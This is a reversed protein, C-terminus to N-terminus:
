VAEGLVRALAKRMEALPAPKDLWLELSCAAQHLLMLRGDAVRTEGRTFERLFPTPESGYVLDMAFPIGPFAAATAPAPDHPRLGLSTANVLLDPRAVAARPGELLVLEGGFGARVLERALMEARATSRNWLHLAAAGGRALAHLVARAGGGAGLVAVRLGEPALGFAEWLARLFGEGDTQTGALRGEPTRWFTNASRCLVSDPSPDDLAAAAREKWPITVNGGRVELRRLAEWGAAFDSVDLALYRARSGLAAFAAQHM